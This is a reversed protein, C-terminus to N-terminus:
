VKKEAVGGGGVVLPGRREREEESKERRKGFRQQNLDGSSKFTKRERIKKPLTNHLIINLVGQEGWFVPKGVTSRRLQRITIKMKKDNTRSKEPDRSGRGAPSKLRDGV